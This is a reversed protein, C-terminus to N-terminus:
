RVSAANNQDLIVNVTAENANVELDWIASGKRTQAIAFLYYIGKPIDAFTAKGQFDSTVEFQKAAAIAKFGADAYTPYLTSFSLSVLLREANPNQVGSVLSPSNKKADNLLMEKLEATNLIEGASASLLYFKTRSVPVVDGSRYVLGAEINITSKGASKNADKVKYQWTGNPKLVVVKGDKTTAEIQAFGASAFALLFVFSLLIKM